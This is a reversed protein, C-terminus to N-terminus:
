IYQNIIAELLEQKGSRVQPTTQTAAIKALDKLSLTGTEFAKGDGEDFSAYRNQRMTKYPSETLIDNAV